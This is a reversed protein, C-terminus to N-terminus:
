GKAGKWFISTLMSVIIFGLILHYFGITVGFIDLSIRDNIANFFQLMSSFLFQLATTM